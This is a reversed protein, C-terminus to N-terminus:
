RKRISVRYGYCPCANSAVGADVKRLGWRGGRGGSSFLCSCEKKACSTCILYTQTAVQAFVGHDTRHSGPRNLCRNRKVALQCLRSCTKTESGSQVSRLLHEASILVDCLVCRKRKHLDLSVTQIHPWVRALENWKVLEQLTPPRDGKRHNCLPCALVIASTQRERRKWLFTLSACYHLTDQRSVRPWQHCNQHHKPEFM